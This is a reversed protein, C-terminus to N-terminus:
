PLIKRKHKNVLVSCDRVALVIAEKAQQGVPGLTKTFRWEPYAVIQRCDVNSDYRLFPHEKQTIPAICDHLHPRHQIFASIESNIFFGYACGSEQYVVVVYKDKPPTTVTTNEVLYVHWDEVTVPM